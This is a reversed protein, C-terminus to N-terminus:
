DNTVLAPINKDKFMKNYSAVENAILNKMQAKYDSWQKELDAFRDRAGQTVRPDHVDVVSRIAFYETNIKSPFNIVDQFNKQKTQVINSEWQDIKKILEKGSNVVDKADAKEKLMENYGEIQKKVNRMANVAAHIEEIRSQLQVMFQQQTNWDASAVKLQPDQVIEFETESTEGKVTIKAKYKGPAVRHGRYDGYV